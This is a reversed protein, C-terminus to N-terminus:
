GRHKVARSRRPKPNPQEVLEPLVPEPIARTIRARKRIRLPEEEREPEDPLVDIEPLPETMEFEDEYREPAPPYTERVRRPAPRYPAPRRQEAPSPRYYRDEEFDAPERSARRPSAEPRYYDREYRERAPQRPEFREQEYYYEDDQDRYYYEPPARTTAVRRRGASQQRYRYDAEDADTYDPAYPYGYQAPEYEPHDYFYPRPEYPLQRSAEHYMGRGQQEPWRGQHYPPYPYPWSGPYAENGPNVPRGCTACVHREGSQALGGNSRVHRANRSGHDVYGQQSLLQYLYNVLDYYHTTTTSTSCTNGPTQAKRAMPCGQDQNNINASLPCRNHVENARAAYPCGPNNGTSKEQAMAKEKEAQKAAEAKVKDEAQKKEEDAKPLDFEIPDEKIVPAPPPMQLMQINSFPNESSNMQERIDLILKKISGKLIMFEKEIENCKCASHEGTSDVIIENIESQDM